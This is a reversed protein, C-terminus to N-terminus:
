IEDFALIRLNDLAWSEDCPESFANDQVLSDYFFLHLESYDHFITQTIRYKSAGNSRDRHLCLGNMRSVAETRPLNFNPFRNPYSQPICHLEQFCLGRSPDGTNSFTTEFKFDEASQDNFKWERKVEMFWRDPGNNGANNGDWSDLIYLDFEFQLIEHDPLDIMHLEFGGDHYNGLMQSNDFQLTMHRTLGNFTTSDEFDNEYIVAAFEFEQQCSLITMFIMVAGITKPFASYSLIKM